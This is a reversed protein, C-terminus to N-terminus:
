KPQITYIADVVKALRDKGNYAANSDVTKGPVFDFKLYATGPALTMFHVTALVGRGQFSSGGSALQSFKISGAKPDVINAAKLTLVEGPQIQVGSQTPVDDVVRLLSPDYHLAYIDVGDIKENGTDLIINAEIVEGVKVTQTQPELILQTNPKSL